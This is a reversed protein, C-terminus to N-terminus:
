PTARLIAEVVRYYLKEVNARESLLQVHVSSGPDSRPEPKYMKEEKSRKVDQDGDQLNKVPFDPVSRPNRLFYRAANNMKAKKDRYFTDLKIEYADVDTPDEAYCQFNITLTYGGATRLQFDFEIYQRGGNKFFPAGWGIEKLEGSGYRWSFYPTKSDKKGLWWWTSPANTELGDRGLQCLSPLM